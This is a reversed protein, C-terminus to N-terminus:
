LEEAMFAPFWNEHATRLAAVPISPANVIRLSRDATLRGVRFIDFGAVHGQTIIRAAETSKCTLM